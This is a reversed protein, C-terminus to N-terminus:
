GNYQIDNLDRDSNTGFETPETADWHFRKWLEKLEEDSMSEYRNKGM